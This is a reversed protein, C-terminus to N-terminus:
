IKGFHKRFVTETAEQPAVGHTSLMKYDHAAARGTAIASLLKRAAGGLRSTWGPTEEYGMWSLGAEMRNVTM